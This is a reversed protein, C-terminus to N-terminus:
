ATWGVSPLLSALRSSLAGLGKAQGGGAGDGLGLDADVTKVVFNRAGQVVGRATGSLGKEVWSDHTPPESVAFFQDSELTSRCVAGYRLLGDPHVSTPLYDVVLEAVRMRAVHHSPGEYPKAMEVVDDAPQTTSAAGVSLAFRGADKPAVTRRYGRSAGSRVKELSEVFPRLESVSRPDPVQLLEGGVDVSFRMLPASDVAVAKPWLHWLMSSAVFLGAERLTRPRAGGADDSMGLDVAILAIDTGTSGDEFGPLGLREALEEAETGVYPDPIGDGAVRGWWHRGTYRQNDDYWSNGLAAGMLRRDGQSTLTDVLIASTRSLRYFIGKGFGYTGGGFENDNAEGVNRLFQVFDAKEDGAPRTGARLPGGLGRTGRDSVVLLVAEQTISSELPLEAEDTPGPLILERWPGTSAGLSRLSIRFDVPGGGSRADWSNQAAERVLVTLPDLMPRGLQKVIGEAAASGEPAFPQSWWRTSM